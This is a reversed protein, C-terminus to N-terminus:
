VVITRRLGLREILARAIEANFALSYQGNVGSFGHGPRDYATVRFDRALARSIPAFDELTGPSGHILLVDRGSGQQQVRLPLGLVTVHEGAFGRPMTPDPTYLLGALSLGTLMAALCVTLLKLMRGTSRTMRLGPVHPSDQCGPGM